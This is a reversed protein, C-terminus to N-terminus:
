ASCSYYRGADACDQFPCKVFSSDTAPAAQLASESYGNALMKEFTPIFSELWITANDAFEEVIQHLPTSGTPEALKQFPCKPEALKGDIRTWTYQYNKLGGADTDLM